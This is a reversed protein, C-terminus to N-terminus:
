RRVTSDGLNGPQLHNPAHSVNKRRKFLKIFARHAQWGIITGFSLVIATIFNM